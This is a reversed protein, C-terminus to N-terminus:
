KNLTMRYREADWNLLQGIDQQSLSYLADTEGQRVLVDAYCRLQVQKAISFGSHAFVGHRRVFVLEPFVGADPLVDAFACPGDRVIAQAGLFVVHDPYLAWDREVRALLGADLALGQVIRDDIPAYGAARAEACIGQGAADALVNASVPCRLSATIRGLMEELQAVTEAGVVVGHNGLFVVPAAGDHALAQAVAQALEAGPKHYDTAVWRVSPDLKARIEDLGDIRVLHALAEVAHLHAVVPQPMLAHLLTEISPKLAGNVLTQPAVAYDGEALAHRLQSLDVPLFIEERDAEALWKGSAKIWLADDQKWSVNGGAGQVLLPDAGIRACFEIVSRGLANIATSM